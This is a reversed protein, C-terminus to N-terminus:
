RRAVEILAERREWVKVFADTYRDVVERPQAILPRTQSFLIISSDLLARANPFHTPAYSERLADPSSSLTFPWGHGFGEFSSVLPHEPLAHDQWLVANAGEATLADILAARLVRPQLDVRAELADFRIRLKHFVCTRDEPIVPVHIGPLEALTAMLRAVNEQALRTREPLKALQVRALAAMMENGRFMHGPALSVQPDGDLAAETDYTASSKTSINQGFSRIQNALEYIADDNTVFVGGEGAALNKSSQMSFGAATGLSGVPAGRYTAGHAQAADEIVALGHRDAIELIERMDAPCGHVHVPMVAKTRETIAAELQAPDMNGTEPRVDVFRPIGGQNMVAMATAVFSYSPVVVEDGAKVGVAAVAIQLASTGAHTLLAHKTGAYASFEDEFARAEPANSGSLVGRDLVRMVATKEDEGVIPWKIHDSETLVPTGGLIALENASM